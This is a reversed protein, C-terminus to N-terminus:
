VFNYSGAQFLVRAPPQRFVRGFVGQEVLAPHLPLEAAKVLFLTELGQAEGAAYIDTLVVSDAESLVRSFEDFLGATRTYRHPQFVAM